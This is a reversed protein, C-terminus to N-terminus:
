QFRRQQLQHRHGYTGSYPGNAKATPAQNVPPAMITATTSSIASAAGANDTVKLTVAYSGAATYAHSPNAATSTSGDGFTWAYASITGDPDTSGASSFAIAAGPAGSYPGNAKATPIQNTPTPAKPSCTSPANSVVRDVSKGDPTIARVSCPVPSPRDKKISWDGDDEAEDTVWCRPHTTPMSWSSGLRPRPAARPACVGSAATALLCQRHELTGRRWM